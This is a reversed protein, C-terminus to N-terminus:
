HFIGIVGDPISGMVKWNTACHRLWQAVMPEQVIKIAILIVTNIFFLKLSIIKHVSWETCVPKQLQLCIQVFNFKQVCLGNFILPYM